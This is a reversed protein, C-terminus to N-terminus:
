EIQHQKMAQITKRIASEILPEYPSKKLCFARNEVRSSTEENIITCFAEEFAVSSVIEKKIKQVLQEEEQNGQNGQNDQNTKNKRTIVKEDEVKDVFKNQKKIQNDYTKKQNKLMLFDNYKNFKSNEQNSIENELNKFKDVKTRKEFRSSSDSPSSSAQKRSM